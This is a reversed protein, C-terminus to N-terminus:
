VLEVVTLQRLDFDSALRVFDRDRLRKPQKSANDHITDGAKAASPLVIGVGCGPGGHGKLSPGGPRPLKMNAMVVAMIIMTQMKLPWLNLSGASPKSRSPNQVKLLKQMILSLM